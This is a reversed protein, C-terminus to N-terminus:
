LLPILPNSWVIKLEPDLFETLDNNVYLLSRIKVCQGSIRWLFFYINAALTSDDKSTYGTVVCFDM